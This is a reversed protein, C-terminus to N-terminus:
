LYICINRLLYLYKVKLYFISGITFGFNQDVKKDKASSIVNSFLIYYM